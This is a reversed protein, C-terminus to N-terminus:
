WTSASVEDFVVVFFFGALRPHCHGCNPDEQLPRAPRAARRAGAQRRPSRRSVSVARRRVRERTALEAVSARRLKTLQKRPKGLPLVAAVAYSKPVGLLERIRPEEAVAMTTLTGGYGENRAALLINWV